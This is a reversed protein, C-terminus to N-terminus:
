EEVEVEFRINSNQNFGVYVGKVWRFTSNYAYTGDLYVVNVPYHPDLDLHALEEYTFLKKKM